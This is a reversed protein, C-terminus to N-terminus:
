FSVPISIDIYSIFITKCNRNHSHNYVNPMVYQCLVLMSANWGVGVGVGVRVGVGAKKDHRHWCALTNTDMSMSLLRANGWM